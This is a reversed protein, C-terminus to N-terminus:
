LRFVCNHLYIDQGSLPPGHAVPYNLFSFNRFPTFHIENTALVIPLLSFDVPTVKAFAQDGKMKMVRVDDKCCGDSKKIHMGCKSCDESRRDGFEVYDVKNMCYHVSVVFGTSVMFYILLLWSVAFKKM